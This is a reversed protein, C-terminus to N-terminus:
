PACLVKEVIMTLVVAPVLEVMWGDEGTGVLLVLLTDFILMENPMGRRTRATAPKLM